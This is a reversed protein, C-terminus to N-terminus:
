IWHLYILISCHDVNFSVLKVLISSLIPHYIIHIQFIKSKIGSNDAFCVTYCNKHAYLAM